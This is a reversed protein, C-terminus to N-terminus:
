STGDGGGMQNKVVKGIAAFAFFALLAMLNITIFNKVNWSILSENM